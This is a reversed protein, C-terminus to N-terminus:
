VDEALQGIPIIWCCHLLNTFYTPQPTLFFPVRACKFSVVLGEMVASAQSHYLPWFHPHFCRCVRGGEARGPHLVLQGSLYSSTPHPPHAAALLSVLSPGSGTSHASAKSDPSTWRVALLSPHAHASQPFGMWLPWPLVILDATKKGICAALRKKTEM